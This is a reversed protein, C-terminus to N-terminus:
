YLKYLDSADFSVVTEEDQMYLDVGFKGSTDEVVHFWKGVMNKLGLKDGTYSVVQVLSGKRYNHENTKTM